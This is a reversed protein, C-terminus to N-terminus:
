FKWDLIKINDRCPTVCGWQTLGDAERQSVIAPLVATQGVCVGDIVFYVLTCKASFWSWSSNKVNRDPTVEVWVQQNRLYRHEVGNRVSVIAECEDVSDFTITCDFGQCSDCECERTWPLSIDSNLCAVTTTDTATMTNGITRINSNRLVTLIINM